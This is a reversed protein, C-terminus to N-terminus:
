HPPLGQMRPIRIRTESASSRSTRSNSLFFDQLIIGVKLSLINPRGELVGRGLGIM